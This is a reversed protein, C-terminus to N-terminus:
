WSMSYVNVGTWSVLLPAFSLETDGRNNIFHLDDGHKIDWEVAFTMHVCAKCTSQVLTVACPSM